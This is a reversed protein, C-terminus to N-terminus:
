RLSRLRTGVDTVHSAVRATFGAEDGDELTALIGAHEDVVQAMWAPEARMAAVGMCLQRDRLANYLRALVTNGAAEVIAAHFARDADALARAEGSDRHRKMEELLPRLTDVLSERRAYAKGATFTEVLSRAELVDEVEQASVPLVLAGKKPYLKLLGEAQLRLLAERVPTRSVGVADAIEGETLLSGGEYTRDLIAAKVHAYARDAAAPRSITADM